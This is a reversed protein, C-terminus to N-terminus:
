LIKDLVGGDDGGGLTEGDAMDWKGSESMSPGAGLLRSWGGGECIDGVRDNSRRILHSSVSKNPALCSLLARFSSAEAEESNRLISSNRCLTSVM